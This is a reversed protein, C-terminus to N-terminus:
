AICFVGKTGLSCFTEYTKTSTWKGTTCSMHYGDIPRKFREWGEYGLPYPKKILTWNSPSNHKHKDIKWTVQRRKERTDFDSTKFRRFWRKCTDKSPTHECYAERLLRYSEAATKKLLFCLILATRSHEKNPILKSMNFMVCLVKVVRARRVSTSSLFHRLTLDKYCLVAGTCWRNDSIRMGYKHM